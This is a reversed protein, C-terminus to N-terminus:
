EKGAHRRWFRPAGSLGQLAQAAAQELTVRRAALWGLAFWARQDQDLAAHFGQQAVAADNFEGLADQAPALVQLYQNVAKAPFLPSLFEVCYRLRKLRRRTRHRLVDNDDAFTKSNGVLQRHLVRLLPRAMSRLDRQAPESAPALATAPREHAFALLALLIRGSSGARVAQGPDPEAGSSPLHTMPAGAQRLAPLLAAALADRDRAASLKHLLAALAPEWTPDIGSSWTAFHRLATRLRRLAVRAQHLHDPRAVGAALPALNPLLHQLCESVLTRAATDPSLQRILTSPRARVATAARQDHALLHGREAKSRVDLWLAHRDIWHAALSTLATFPGRLLEFELECLPRSRNGARLEGEDFAVAVEGGGSRVRRATRQVDSVFVLQLPSAEKLVRRLMKGAPTGDHRAIEPTPETGRAVAKVAVEHEIRMGSASHPATLTQLWGQNERRLRLALGAAALQRDATDFYLTRLRRKSATATAVARHVADRDQPAVQFKLEFEVPSATM